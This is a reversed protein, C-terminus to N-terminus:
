FIVPMRLIFFLAVLFILGAVGVLIRQNTYSDIVGCIGSFFLVMSLVLSLLIYTDSHKDAVNAAKKFETAKAAYQEAEAKEPLKYEKMRFPSSPADLNQDPDLKEWAIFAVKLSKPFRNFLFEALKTNNDSVANAYELFLQLEATQRQAGAVEYQLRFQNAATEDDIRFYQEGSWQSSQYVCWASLVTAASLLLTCATEIWKRRPDKAVLRLIRDLKSEAIAQDDM